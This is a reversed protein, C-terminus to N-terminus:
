DGIFSLYIRSELQKPPRCIYPQSQEILRYGSSTLTRVILRAQAEVDETKAWVRVRLIDSPQDAPEESVDYWGKMKDWLVGAKGLAAYLAEQDDTIPINKSAAIAAAGRYKATNKAM